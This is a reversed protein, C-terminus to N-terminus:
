TFRWAKGAHKCAMSQCSGKRQCGEPHDGPHLCGSLFQPQARTNWRKVVAVQREANDNVADLIKGGRRIPCADENDEVHQWEHYMRPPDFSRAWSEIHKIESGCYPCDDIALADTM